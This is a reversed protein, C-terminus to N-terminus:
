KQFALANTLSFRIVEAKKTRPRHSAMRMTITGKAKQMITILTTAMPPLASSSGAPSVAPITEVPQNCGVSTAIALMLTWVFWRM